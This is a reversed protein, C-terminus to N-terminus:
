RTKTTRLFSSAVLVKTTHLLWARALLGVEVTATKTSERGVLLHQSITKERAMLARVRESLSM